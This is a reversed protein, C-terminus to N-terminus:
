MDSFGVSFNDIFLSVDHLKKTPPIAAEAQKDTICAQYSFSSTHANYQPKTLTLVISYNENYHIPKHYGHLVANPKIQFNNRLTTLFNTNNLHGVIRKPQDSFYIIGVEIGRLNLQYCSSNKIPTLEATKAQQLFLVSISKAHESAFCNISLIILIISTLTKM